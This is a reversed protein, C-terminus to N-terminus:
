VIKYQSLVETLQETQTLHYAQLGVNRAGEVHQPSDDIFLTQAPSLDHNDLILRYIAPEPKRAGVKNSYYVAEFFPQLSHLDHQKKIIHHFATYHIANTNSLLFLRYDPKLQKLLQLREAPLDLLMDNWAEDIAEDSLSLKLHKRIAERFDGATLEGREFRNFFQEQKFKTFIQPFRKGGLQKFARETRKYDINLIVGGLDFIINCIDYKTNSM